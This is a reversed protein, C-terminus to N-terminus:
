ALAHIDDIKFFNYIMLVSHQIDNLRLHICALAHHYAGITILHLSFDSPIGLRRSPYFFVSFLTRPIKKHVLLSKARSNQSVILAYKLNTNRLIRRDGSFFMGWINKKVSRELGQIKIYKCIFFTPM